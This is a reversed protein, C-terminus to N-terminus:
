WVADKKKAWDQKGEKKRKKEEMKKPKWKRQIMENENKKGKNKNM